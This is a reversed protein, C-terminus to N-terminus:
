LLRRTAAIPSIALALRFAPRIYRMTLPDKAQPRAANPTFSGKRWSGISSQEVTRAAKASDSTM